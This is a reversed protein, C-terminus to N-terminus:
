HKLHFVGQLSSAGGDCYKEVTGDTDQFTLVDRKVVAVVGPLGAGAPDGEPALDAIVNLRTVTGKFVDNTINGEAIFGCDAPTAAGNPIGGVVVSLRIKASRERRVEVSGGGLESSAREYVQKQDAAHATASYWVGLCLILLALRYIKRNM